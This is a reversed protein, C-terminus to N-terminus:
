LRTSYYKRTAPSSNSVEPVSVIIENLGGGRFVDHKNIKSDSCRNESEAQNANLFDTSYNFNTM